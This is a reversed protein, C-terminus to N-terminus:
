GLPNPAGRGPEFLSTSPASQVLEPVLVFHDRRGQRTLWYGKGNAGHWVVVPDARSFRAVFDDRRVTRITASRTATIQRAGPESRFAAGLLIEHRGIHIVRGPAVRAKRLRGAELRSPSRESGAVDNRDCRSELRRWLFVEHLGIPPGSSQVDRAAGPISARDVSAPHRSDTSGPNPVHMREHRPHMSPEGRSSAGVPEIVPSELIEHIGRVVASARLWPPATARPLPRSVRPLKTMAQLRDRAARERRGRRSRPRRLAKPAAARATQGATPFGSGIKPRDRVEGRPGLAEADRSEGPLDFM